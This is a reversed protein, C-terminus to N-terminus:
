ARGDGRRCARSRGVAQASCDRGAEEVAGSTAGSGAELARVHFWYRCRRLIRRRYLRTAEAPVPAAVAILPAPARDEMSRVCSLLTSNPSSGIMASPMLVSAQPAAPQSTPGKAPLM